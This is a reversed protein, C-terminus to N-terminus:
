ESVGTEQIYCQTTHSAWYIQPVPGLTIELNM